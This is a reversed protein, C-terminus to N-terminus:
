VRALPWGASTMYTGSWCEPVARALPTSTKVREPLRTLAIVRKSAVTSGRKPNGVVRGLRAGPGRGTEPAHDLRVGQGCRRRLRGEGTAVAVIEEPLNGFDERLEAAVHQSLRAAIPRLWAMVEIVM